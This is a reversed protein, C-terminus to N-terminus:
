FSRSLFTPHRTQRRVRPVRHSRSSSPCSSSSSSSSFARDSTKKERRAQHRRNNYESRETEGDDVRAIGIIFYYRTVWCPIEIRASGNNLFIVRQRFHIGHKDFITPVIISTPGQVAFLHDTKKIRGFFRIDM